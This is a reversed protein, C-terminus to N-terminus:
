GGIFMNFLPGGYIVSFLVIWVVDVFHWYYSIAVASMAQEHTFQRTMYSRGLIYLFGILGGLVHLGHFGTALFFVSGYVDSSITLGHQILEAYEFIQGGIFFSGMVITLIYWERMGWKLIAFPGGSRSVKGHEAAHVGLQCTVSSLVLVSTNILAFTPNLVSEGLQFLTPQGPESQANTVNRITFYAAFLAAFFMLESALWVIIGVPLADPRGPLGRRRPNAVSHLAGHPRTPLTGVTETSNEM